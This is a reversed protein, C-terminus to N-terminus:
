GSGPLDLHSATESAPLFDVAGVTLGIAGTLADFTDLSPKRKGRLLTVQDAANTVERCALGETM